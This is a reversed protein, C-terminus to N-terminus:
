IAETWLCDASAASLLDAAAARTRDEATPWLHAYTSLTTTASDHGLAHQVTVVDCGSAILGSAYFHRLDHFRVTDLGARRRTTRWRHTVANNHWPQGRNHFLWNGHRRDVQTDAVLDSLMGLVGDPLYVVHESGYKPPTVAVARGDRQLQRAVTLQRRMFDIDGLQVGATEGSRLGAFACLAIFPMFPQDAARLLRGVAEVDPIRMAAERKRPRRLVVGSSPDSPIARDAVAARLVSRVITFRTRITSPALRLSMEKM